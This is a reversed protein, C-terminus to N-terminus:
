GRITLYFPLPFFFYFDFLISYFYFSFFFFVSSFFIATSESVGECVVCWVSLGHYNLGPTAMGTDPGGEKLRPELAARCSGAQKPRHAM